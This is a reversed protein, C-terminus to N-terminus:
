FIGRLSKPTVTAPKAKPAVQVNPQELEAFAGSSADIVDNTLPKKSGDFAQACGLYMDNWGGQLLDVKGESAATAYPTARMVKDRSAKVYDADFGEARLKNKLGEGWHISESGGELEWRVKVHKGDTRATAIILEEVKGPGRQEAVVDLVTYRDVRNMKVGATYFHSKKAVEAATAAIDWFRVTRGANPTISTSGFWTRDFVKGAEMKVKWNGGKEEDGLLRARDVPHLLKLRAKYRPDKEMLIRNDKLRARIFTFSYIDDERSFGQAELEEPTDAWIFENDVRVFYRVVGSREPIIYGDEDIWWAIFKAVWHEADPNMTARVKPQVGCTTRNRSLMYWFVTDSFHTLEDFGIYAIQAGQYNHRDSDHELHAFSVKAGSTFVHEMRTQVARAGVGEYLDLSTDWLAGEETIQAYTRRFIVAGYGPNHTNQAADLLLGASKGGGATGGYFVIDAKSSLLAEQPGPQPAPLKKAATLTIANIAQAIAEEVVNGVKGLDPHETWITEAWV